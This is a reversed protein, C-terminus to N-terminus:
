VKQRKAQGLKMCTTIPPLILLYNTEFHSSPRPPSCAKDSPKRHLLKCDSMTVYRSLTEHVYVNRICADKRLRTRTFGSEDRWGQTLECSVCAFGKGRNIWRIDCETMENM